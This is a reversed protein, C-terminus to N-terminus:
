IGSRSRLKECEKGDQLFDIWMDKPNEITPASPWSLEARFSGTPGNISIDGLFRFFGCM